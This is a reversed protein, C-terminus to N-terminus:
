LITVVPVAGRVIIQFALNRFYIAHGHSRTLNDIKKGDDSRQDTRCPGLWVSQVVNGFVGGRRIAPSRDRFGNIIQGSETLGGFDGSRGVNKCMKCNIRSDIVVRLM